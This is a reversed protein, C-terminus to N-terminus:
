MVGVLRYQWNDYELIKDTGLVSKFMIPHISHGYIKGLADCLSQISDDKPDSWSQWRSVMADNYVKRFEWYYVNIDIM